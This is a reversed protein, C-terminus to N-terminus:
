NSSINTITAQSKDTSIANAFGASVTSAVAFHRANEVKKNGWCSTGDHVKLGLIRHKHCLLPQAFGQRPYRFVMHLFDSKRIRQFHCRLFKVVRSKFRALLAWMWRFFPFVTFSCNDFLPRAISLKRCRVSVSAVTPPPVTEVKEIAANGHSCFWVVKLAIRNNTHSFNAASFVPLVDSCKLSLRRRLHNFNDQLCM